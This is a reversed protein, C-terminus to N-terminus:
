PLRNKSVRIVHGLINYTLTWPLRNKRVGLILDGSGISLTLLHLATVFTIHKLTWQFWPVLSYNTKIKFTLDGSKMVKNITMRRDKAQSGM